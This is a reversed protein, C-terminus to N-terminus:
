TRLTCLFFHTVRFCISPNDNKLSSLNAEYLLIGIMNSEIYDILGCSMEPQYHAAWSEAYCYKKLMKHNLYREIADSTQFLNPVSYKQKRKLHQWSRFRQSSM